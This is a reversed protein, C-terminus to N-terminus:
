HFTHMAPQPPVWAGKEVFEACKDPSRNWVVMPAGTKLLNLAMGRGMIGLGIFGISKQAAM